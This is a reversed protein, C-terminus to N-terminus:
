WSALRPFLNFCSIYKSYKVFIKLVIWTAVTKYSIKRDWCHAMIKILGRLLHLQSLIKTLDQRTELSKILLSINQQFASLLKTLVSFVGVLRRPFLFIMEKTTQRKYIIMALHHSLSRLQTFKLQMLEWFTPNISSRIMFIINKKRTGKIFTCQSRQIGDQCKKNPFQM